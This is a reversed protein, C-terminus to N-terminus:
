REIGGQLIRKSPLLTKRTSVFQGGRGFIIQCLIYFQLCIFRVFGIMSSNYMGFNNADVALKFHLLGTVIFGDFCISDNGTIPSM